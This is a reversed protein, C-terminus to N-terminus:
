LYNIKIKRKLKVSKDVAFCITMLDIQEKISILPKINKKKLTEIFNQILKKRNQKDPYKSNIKKLKEKKFIYSGLRTHVLTQNDSFIKIEHFHDFVAAGNATIKVIINKPYEFLMTIISNKKFVTGKTAKKNGVAYVKKPKLNTLWNILDIIHIGAGLTLSYQKIKSRWGFLKKKRGYIYDGEIYYVKKKNIRKKFEKFLANVRLVLNSTIKINKKKILKYINKLQNSNLCM